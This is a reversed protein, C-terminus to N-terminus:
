GVVIAKGGFEGLLRALLQQQQPGAAAVRVM